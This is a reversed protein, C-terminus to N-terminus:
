YDWPDPNPPAVTVTVTASATSSLGGNDTVKLQFVYTGQVIGKLPTIVLDPDVILATSPGSIQSWRYATISGDLDLGFGVLETSDDPLFVTANNARALPGENEHPTKEKKCAIFSVGAVLLIILPKM